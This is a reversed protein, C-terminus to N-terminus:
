ASDLLDFLGGLLSQEGKGVRARVTDVRTRAAPDAMFRALLESKLREFLLRERRESRRVGLKGSNELEALKQLLAEGLTDVGQNEESSVCLVTTAAAHEAGLGLAHILEVRSTEALQKRVGDAKHVVVLDAWELLGRKIGQLEDGAGPEAVLVLVDVVGAISTEAQGVGVSEVFVPDYGAAGCLAAVDGTSAAVGWGEPGSPSPRVFAEVRRALEVMRTKDGLISGGTHQSTPDVALVAPRLGRGIMWIGLRDLLSSKGAGPSGTIGVRRGRASPVILAELLEAAARKDVTRRSEVLTIARALARRDGRLLASAWELSTM